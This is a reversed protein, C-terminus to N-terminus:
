VVEKIIRTRAGEVKILGQMELYGKIKEATKSDVGIEAGIAKFGKSYGGSTQTKYMVRKYNEIDDDSLDMEVKPVVSLKSFPIVNSSKENKKFTFRRQKKREVESNTSLENDKDVHVLSEKQYLYAFVNAILELVIGLSMFFYLELQKSDEGLEKGILNFFASYGNTSLVGEVKIPKQMVESMVSLESSKKDVQSMINQKMSYYNSPLSDAQARLQEIEAKKVNYADLLVRRSEEAQQYQKSQITTQNDTKNAQNLVYGCSAAISGVTVLTWLTILIGSLGTSHKGSFGEWLLFWKSMEIVVASVFMITIAWKGSANSVFLAVTFALSIAFSLISIIAFKTKRSM